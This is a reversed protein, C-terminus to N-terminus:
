KNIIGIKEKNIIGIKEGVTVMTEIGKKSYEIIDKDIKINNIIIVVTSGGPLFYGQEEGRKFTNNNYNIIKGILMAGVEMYIFEGLNKTQLISYERHNEKYIKHHKSTDSVTHYKGKIIKNKIINGDDIHHFRHYDDVALRFVLIYGNKYNQLNENDFLENLTYEQNKIKVKLNEKIKYVLLKSNCPSILKNKEKEIKLEKLKRIFFENFTKYKKNEYIDMNINNQKIFKKIKYKSLKTNNPIGYLKTIAKSTALTLLLKNNYIKKLPKEGIHKIEEIQKTKRNYVKTM